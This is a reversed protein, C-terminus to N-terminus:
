HLKMRGSALKAHARAARSHKTQNHALVRLQDKRIDSYEERAIGSIKYDMFGYPRAFTEVSALNVILDWALRCREAMDEHISAMSQHEERTLGPLVNRLIRAADSDSVARLVSPKGNYRPFPVQTEYLSMLASWSKETEVHAEAAAKEKM